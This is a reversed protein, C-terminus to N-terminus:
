RAIKQGFTPVRGPKKELSDLQTEVLLEIARGVAARDDSEAASLLGFDIMAMLRRDALPVSYIRTRAQQRARYRRKRDAAATVAIIRLAHLEDRALLRGGGPKKVSM